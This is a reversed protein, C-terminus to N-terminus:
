SERANRAAAVFDPELRKGGTALRFSSTRGM